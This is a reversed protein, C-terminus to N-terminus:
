AATPSMRTVPNPDLLRSILDKALTSIMVVEDLFKFSGAIVKEFMKSQSLGEFPLHGYLM